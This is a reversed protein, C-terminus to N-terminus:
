PKRRRLVEVEDADHAAGLHRLEEVVAGPALPARESLVRVAEAPRGAATLLRAVLIETSLDIDLRDISWAATEPDSTRDLELRDCVRTVRTALPEPGALIELAEESASAPTPAPLSALAAAMSTDAAPVLTFPFSVSVAEGGTSQPFQWRRIADLFCRGVPPDVTWSPRQQASLVQGSPSITFDDVIRGTEARHPGADQEYCYRLENVHRRVIRRILEKDLSGRVSAQGPIVDPAAARRGGFSGAGRGYGTGGGKTITGLNGLGITGEATGGGGAGTGVLGLGGVGNAEGVQNGSLNGLVSANRVEEGVLGNLVDAADTSVPSDVIGNGSSRLGYLGAKL